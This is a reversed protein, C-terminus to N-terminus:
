RAGDGQRKHQCHSSRQVHRREKKALGSESADRRSHHQLTVAANSEPLNSPGVQEQPDVVHHLESLILEAQRDRAIDCTPPELETAGHSRTRNSDKHDRRHLLELSVATTEQPGTAEHFRKLFIVGISTKPKQTVKQRLDLDLPPHQRLPRHPLQTIITRNRVKGFRTELLPQLRESWNQILFTLIQSLGQHNGTKRYPNM